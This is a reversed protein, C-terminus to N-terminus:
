HITGDGADSLVLDMARVVDLCTTSLDDDRLTETVKRAGHMAGSGHQELLLKALNWTDQNHHM